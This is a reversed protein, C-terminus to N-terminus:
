IIFSSYYIAYNSKSSIGEPARKFLKPLELKEEKLSTKVYFVNDEVYILAYKDMGSPPKNIGEAVLQFLSTLLTTKGCGNDGVFAKIDVINDSYFYELQKKNQENENDFFIKLKGSNWEHRFAYQSSLNMGLDDFLYGKSEDFDDLNRYKEIWFYVYKKMNM